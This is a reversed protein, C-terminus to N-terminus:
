LALVMHVLAGPKIQYTNLTNTDAMAKGSFILRQQPPAIGEKEEIREKLKLITEEPNVTLEFEKGTLARIKIQM